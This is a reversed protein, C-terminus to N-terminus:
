AVSGVVQGRDRRGGAGAGGGVVPVFREAAQGLHGDHRRGDGAIRPGRVHGRDVPRCRRPRFRGAGVSRVPEPSLEPHEPTTFTCNGPQHCQHDVAIAVTIILVMGVIGVFGVIIGALALGNGRQGDGSRKIQSRAVFGFVVALVSGVGFVWLLSCVLSAVALGNTTHRPCTVTPRTGRSTATALPPRLHVTAPAM